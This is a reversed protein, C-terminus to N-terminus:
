AVGTRSYTVRLYVADVNWAYNGGTVALLSAAAVFDTKSALIEADTWGAVASTIDYTDTVLAGDNRTNAAETSQYVQFLGSGDAKKHNIVCSATSLLGVTTDIQQRVVLEVKTRVHSAPASGVGYSAVALTGSVSNGASASISANVGNQAGQANTPNAWNGTGSVSTAYGTAVPASDVLMSNTDSGVAAPQEGVANSPALTDTDTGVSRGGSGSQQADLSDNAAGALLLSASQGMGATQTDEGLARAGLDGAYGLTDTQTGVGATIDSEGSGPIEGGGGVVRRLFVRKHWATV